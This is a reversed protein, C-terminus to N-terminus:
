GKGEGNVVDVNQSQLKDLVSAPIPDSQHLKKPAPHEATTLMEPLVVFEISIINGKGKTDFTVRSVARCHRVIADWTVGHVVGCHECLYRTANDMM